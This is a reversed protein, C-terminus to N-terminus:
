RKTERAPVTLITQAFPWEPDVWQKTTSFGAETGWARLEDVSFRHSSETWITEGAEFRVTLELSAIRVELARTAELHMEIRRAAANWKARHVFADLPFDAGWERNLRVLLNKDFAATVGLPDDYAPVLREPRKDLDTALLLADGPSLQARVDRLFALAEVRDFNSLNSGLFLVLRRVGPRRESAVRALGQVYPAEVTDVHVGDLQELTRKCDELAQASVDVAIFRVHPQRERLAEVLVRAKRGAGPGLEVLELEGDGAVMEHKWAELLRLGARTVGYEPLFTIAEFLMSGLADYLLASPLQKQPQTLGHRILENLNM